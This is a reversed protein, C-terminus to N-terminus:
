MKIRHRAINKRLSEKDMTQFIEKQKDIADKDIPVSEPILERMRALVLCMNYTRLVKENSEYENVKVESSLM